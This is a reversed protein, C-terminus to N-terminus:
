WSAMFALVLPKGQYESLSVAKGDLTSGGLPPAADGDVDTATTATAAPSPSSCAVAGLVLVILVLLVAASRM